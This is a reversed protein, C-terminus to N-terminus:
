LPGQRARDPPRGVLCYVFKLVILGAISPVPARHGRPLQLADIWRLDERYGLVSM